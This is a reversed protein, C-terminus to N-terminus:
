VKRLNDEQDNVVEKMADVDGIWSHRDFILDAGSEAMSTM